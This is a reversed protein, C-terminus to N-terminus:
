NIFNNEKLYNYLTEIAEDLKGEKNVVVFDYLDKHKLFENSYKMREEIYKEDTEGRKILRKKLIEPSEVTILVAKIGPFMKKASQVGKFDVKWVGLAGSNAVRQLEEKTVGYYNDNYHQAWEVFEDNKIKRKFEDKSIFYYPSGQSEGERPERTTTTIVREIPTKNKLGEIISDEGAGSPGSIIIIRSTDLM